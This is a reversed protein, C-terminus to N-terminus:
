VCDEDTSLTNIQVLTLDSFMVQEYVTHWLNQKLVQWIRIVLM